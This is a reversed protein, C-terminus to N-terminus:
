GPGGLFGSDLYVVEVRPRIIFGARQLKPGLLFPSVCLESKLLMQKLTIFYMRAPLYIETCDM